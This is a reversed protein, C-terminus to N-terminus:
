ALTEGDSTYVTEGSMVIVIRQGQDVRLSRDDGVTPAQAMASSKAQQAKLYADCM